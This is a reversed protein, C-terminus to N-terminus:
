PETPANTLVTASVPLSSSTAIAETNHRQAHHKLEAVQM